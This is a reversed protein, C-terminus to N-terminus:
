SGCIAGPDGGFEQQAVARPPPPSPVRARGRGAREARVGPAGRGSGSSQGRRGSPVKPSLRGGRQLADRRRPATCPARLPRSAPGRNNVEPRAAADRPGTPIHPENRRGM